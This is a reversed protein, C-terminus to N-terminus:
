DDSEDDDSDMREGNDVRDQSKVKQTPASTELQPETKKAKEEQDIKDM